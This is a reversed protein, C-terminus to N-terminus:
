SSKKVSLSTDNSNEVFRTAYDGAKLIYREITECLVYINSIEFIKKQIFAIASCFIYITVASVTCSIYINLLSIKLGLVRLLNVLYEYHLNEICPHMHIVYVYVCFSSFYYVISRIWLHSTMRFQIFLQVLLIAEIWVLPSMNGSFVYGFLFGFSNPFISSLVVSIITVIVSLLLGLICIRKRFVINLDNMRRLSGGLFYFIILQFTAFKVDFMNPSGSLSPIISYVIFLVFVALLLQQNKLSGLGINLIPMFFMLGFYATIYWWHHRGLPRLFFLLKSLNLLNPTFFSFVLAISVSYFFLEIYMSFCRSIRLKSKSLFYGSIIAFCPVCWDTLRILIISSIKGSVFASDGQMSLLLHLFVIGLMSLIRLLEIGVNRKNGDQVSPMTLPCPNLKAFLTYM